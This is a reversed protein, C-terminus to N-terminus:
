KTRPAVMDELNMPYCMKTHLGNWVNDALIANVADTPHYQDWWIHNTANSCAIESAFCMIWGKYKGLGCCADATVNFGYLEHNKIIDMSGEYMDCFTIKADPLELGLEEIMYRMVFNYELIMDNIEEICEGNKSNYRWLYYPACGIPPLGMLIVRRVNMNYLNKIEQRISAAVFQNFSWPLYLNQINSANRLYYHIYDNVGISIYFVSNSILENAAAEGMNLIFSQLTDSFQQIQQTFSIRQGLESGSSFIVGAGASAYNVGKIMDEVTGMQGLYNPVFPLGLRLALYDVPIRGNCFRGTPKHTDFDRGYPSHDARALTGLYNNTGCDVSSDGFVFFAPVLPPNVPLTTPTPSPSPSISFSVVLSSSPSIASTNYTIINQSLNKLEQPVALNRSRTFFSSLLLLLLPLLLSISM